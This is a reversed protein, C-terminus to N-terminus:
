NQYTRGIEAMTGCIADIVMDLAVLVVDTEQRSLAAVIAAAIAAAKPAEGRAAVARYAQAVMEAEEAADVTPLDFRVEVM